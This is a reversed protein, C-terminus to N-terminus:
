MQGGGSAAGHDGRWSGGARRSCSRRRGVKYVHSEPGALLVLVTVPGRWSM